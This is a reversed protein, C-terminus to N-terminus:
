VKNEKYEDCDLHDWIFNAIDNPIRKKRYINLIKWAISEPKYKKGTRSISTECLLILIDNLPEHCCDPQDCYGLVVSFLTM